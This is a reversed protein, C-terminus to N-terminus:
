PHPHGPKKLEAIGEALGASMILVLGFAERLGFGEDTLIIASLSATAVEALLLITVRGPDLYRAGWLLLMTSPVLWLMSAAAAWGLALLLNPPAALDGFTVLAILSIVGAIPFAVITQDMGDVGDGAHTITAGAAFFLGSALATVDPVTFHDLMDASLGLLIAAGSLGLVITAVRLRGIPLKLFIAGLITGWVPALYFLLTVRVVPGMLLSINWLSVAAGFMFAAALLQTGGSRISGRRAWAFPILGLSGVIYLWANSALGSLGTMESARLPIWWLGWLAASGLIAGTARASLSFM